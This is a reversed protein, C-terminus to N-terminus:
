KGTDGAPRFGIAKLIDEIEERQKETGRGGMIVSMLGGAEEKFPVCAFKGAPTTIRFSNVLKEMSLGGCVGILIVFEAVFAGYTKNMLKNRGRYSFIKELYFWRQESDWRTNNGLAFRKDTIEMKKVDRLEKLDEDTLLGANAFKFIKVTVVLNNEPGECGNSIATAALLDYTVGKRFRKGPETETELTITEKKAPLTFQVKAGGFNLEVPLGTENDAIECM